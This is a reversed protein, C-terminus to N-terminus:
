TQVTTARSSEGCSTMMTPPMGMAMGVTSDTVRASPAKVSAFSPAITDRMDPLHSPPHTPPYTPAKRTACAPPHSPPRRGPACGSQSTFMAVIAECTTLRWRPVHSAIAGGWGAQLAGPTHTGQPPPPCTTDLTLLALTHTSEHPRGQTGNRRGKWGGGESSCSHSPPPSAAKPAERHGDGQTCCDGRQKDRSDVPAKNGKRVKHLRPPSPQCPCGTSQHTPPNPPHHLSHTFTPLPM